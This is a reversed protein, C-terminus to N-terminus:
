EGKFFERAYIKKLKYIDGSKEVLVGVNFEYMLDYTRGYILITSDSCALNWTEIHNLDLKSKQNHIDDKIKDILLSYEKEVIDKIKEVSEYSIIDVETLFTEGNKGVRGSLGVVTTGSIYPLSDELLFYYLGSSDFTRLFSIFKEKVYIGKIDVQMDKGLAELGNRGNVGFYPLKQFYPPFDETELFRQPNNFYESSKECSIFLFIAITFFFRVNGKSFSM